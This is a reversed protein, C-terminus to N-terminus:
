VEDSEYGFENQESKELSVSQVATPSSCESHVHYGRRPLEQQHFIAVKEGEQVCGTRQTLALGGPHFFTEAATWHTFVTSRTEGQTHPSLALTQTGPLASSEKALSCLSSPEGLLGQSM